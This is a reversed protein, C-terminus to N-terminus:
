SVRHSTATPTLRSTCSRTASATRGPGTAIIRETFPITVEQAGSVGIPPLTQSAHLGVTVVYHNADEDTGQTQAQLQILIHERATRDTVLQVCTTAMGPELTLVTGTCPNVIPDPTFSLEMCQKEKTAQALAPNTGVLCLALGALTAVVTDRRSRRMEEM